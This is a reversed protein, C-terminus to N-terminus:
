ARGGASEQSRVSWAFAVVFGVLTWGLLVNVVAISGANRVRRLMAIGTPLLYISILFLIAFTIRLVNKV